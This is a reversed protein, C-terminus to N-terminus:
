KREKFLDIMGKAQKMSACSFTTGAVYAVWLGSVFSQTILCGKYHYSM